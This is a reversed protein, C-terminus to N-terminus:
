RPLGKSLHACGLQGCWGQTRVVVLASRHAQSGEGRQAGIERCATKTHHPYLHLVRWSPNLKVPKAHSIDLSPLPPGIIPWVHRSLETHKCDPRTDKDFCFPRVRLYAARYFRTVAVGFCLIPTPSPMRRNRCVADRGWMRQGRALRHVHMWDASETLYPRGATKVEPRVQCGGPTKTKDNSPLFWEM